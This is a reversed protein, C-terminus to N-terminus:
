QLIIWRYGSVLREVADDGERLMSALLCFDIEPKRYMRNNKHNMSHFFPFVEVM